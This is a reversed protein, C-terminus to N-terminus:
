GASRWFAELRENLGPLRNVHHLAGPLVLREAGLEAALREAIAEMAPHWGGSVVLKPFPAARLVGFDFVAEGLDRERRSTLTGEAVVRSLEREEWAVGFARLFAAEHQSATLDAAFVARVRAYLEAVAPVDLAIGYAPPELAALSRIREACAPAAALAALAGASFGVVHAGEGPLLAPLDSADRDWGIPGDKPSAGYGRRHPILLRWREALSLQTAFSRSGYAVTGHLLVVPDGAGLEEVWLASM